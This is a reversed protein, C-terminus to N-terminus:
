HGSQDRQTCKDKAHNLAEELNAFIGSSRLCGNILFHVSYGEQTHIIFPTDGICNPALSPNILFGDIYDEAFCEIGDPLIFKKKQDM